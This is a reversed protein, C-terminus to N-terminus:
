GRRDQRYVPELPSIYSRYTKRWSYYGWFSALFYIITLVGYYNLEKTYYLWITVGNIIIWYIWGNLLKKAELYSASFSFITTFADFYPKDADTNTKLLYGLGLALLISTAILVLHNIIPWQRVKLAKNKQNWLYYGYVGIIVYYVYLIAEAYLKQHYFLYISLLSGAIGFFWSIKKELIILILFALGLLTAIIEIIVNAEM